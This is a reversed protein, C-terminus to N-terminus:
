SAAPEDDGDDGVRLLRIEFGQSFAGPEGTETRAIPLGDTYALIVQMARLSEARKGSLAISVLREVM